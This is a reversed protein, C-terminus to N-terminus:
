PTPRAAELMAALSDRLTFEPRWGSLARLKGASGVVSDADQGRLLAPDAVVRIPRGSLEILLQLLGRVTTAQETAVNYIGGPAGLRAIEWYARVADRVDVFDRNSGSNGVRVERSAPDAVQRCLAGAVLASPLGPGILNFTRAVCVALGLREGLALALLTQGLKSRGYATVPSAAQSEGILGGGGQGYEAASGISLVRARGGAAALGLLVGLTAGVNARWLEPEPAPPMAGALHIVHTPSEQEALGRITEPEGLDVREFRDVGPPPEGAVDVGLIRPRPELGRLHAVLHRGSFGAVGTVLVRTM